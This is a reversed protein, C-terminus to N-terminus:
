DIDDDLEKLKAEALELLYLIVWSKTPIEQDYLFGKQCAEAHLRMIVPDFWAPGVGKPLFRDPVPVAM